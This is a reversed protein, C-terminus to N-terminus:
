VLFDQGAITEGEQWAREGTLDIMMEVFGLVNFGSERYFRIADSNRAVPMVSLLPIQRRRAEAIVHDVLARGIGSGRLRRTVVVPEVEVMDDRELLGTLGVVAEDRVAVWLNAPGVRELHRDFHAGPDDGGITDTDYVARHQETLEVWLGRCAGRDEESYGRIDVM